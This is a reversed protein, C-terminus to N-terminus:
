SVFNPAAGEWQNSLKLDLTMLKQPSTKPSVILQQFQTTLVRQSEHM